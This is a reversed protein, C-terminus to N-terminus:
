KVVLTTKQGRSAHGPLSCILTYTGPKLDVELTQPGDSPGFTPTQGLVGSDDVVTLNHQMRGTNTVVFTIKGAAVESQNLDIAWERLTAQVQTSQGTTQASASSTDGAAPTATPAAAGDTTAASPTDEAMGMSAPTDTPATQAQGDTAAPATATAASISANGPSDATTGCASLLLSGVVALAVLLSSRKLRTGAPNHKNSLTM